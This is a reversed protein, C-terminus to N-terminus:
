ASVNKSTVALAAVRTIVEEDVGSERLVNVAEAIGQEIGQEIGKAEGREVAERELRALYDMRSQYEREASVADEFARKVKPDDVARGYLEAFYEIGPVESMIKEVEADDAYGKTLLYAWSLLNDSLVEENLQNYRKRIKALEVM